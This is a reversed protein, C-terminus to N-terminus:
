SIRFKDFTKLAKNDFAFENFFGQEVVLKKHVALLKSGSLM